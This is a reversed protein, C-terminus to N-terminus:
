NYTVNSSIKIIEDLPNRYVNQNGFTGAQQNNTAFFNNSQQMQPQQQVTDYAVNHIMTNGVMVFPQTNNIANNVPQQQMQQQNNSVFFNNSQTQVPIQQQPQANSYQTITDIVFKELVVWKVQNLRNILQLIFGGDKGTVENVITWGGPLVTNVFYPSSNSNAAPMNIFYFNGGRDVVAPFGLTNEDYIYGKQIYSDYIYSIVDNVNPTTPQSVNINATMTGVNGFGNTTMAGNNFQMGNNATLGATYANSGDPMRGEVPLRFTPQQQVQQNNNTAFFGTNTQPAQNTNVGNIRDQYSIVKPTGGNGGFFAPSNNTNVVPSVTNGGVQSRFNVLRTPDNDEGFDFVRTDVNKKFRRIDDKHVLNRKTFANIIEVEIAEKSKGQYLQNNIEMLLDGATDLLSASNSEISANKVAAVSADLFIGMMIPLYQISFEEDYFVEMSARFEDNSIIGSTQAQEFMTQILKSSGNSTKANNIKVLSNMLVALKEIRDKKEFEARSKMYLTYLKSKTENKLKGIEMNGYVANMDQEQMIEDMVSESVKIMQNSEDNLLNMRTLYGKIRNVNNSYDVGFFVPNVAIGKVNTNRM